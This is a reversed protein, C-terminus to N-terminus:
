IKIFILDNKRRRKQKREQRTIIFFLLQKLFTIIFLFFFIFLYFFFSPFFLPTPPYYIFLYILNFRALTRFFNTATLDNLIHTPGGERGVCPRSGNSHQWGVQVEGEMIGLLKLLDDKSFDMFERKQDGAETSDLLLKEKDSIVEVKVNDEGEKQQVKVKLSKMPLGVEEEHNIDNENQSVGLVGNAPSDVGSTKSRM